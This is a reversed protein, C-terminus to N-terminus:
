KKRGGLGPIMDRVMGFTMYKFPHQVLPDRQARIMNVCARLLFFSVLAWIIIFFWNQRGFIEMSLFSLSTISMLGVVLYAMMQFPRPDNYFKDWDMIREGRKDTKRGNKEEVM